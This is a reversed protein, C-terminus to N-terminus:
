GQLLSEANMEWVRIVKYRFRLYEKGDPYQHTLTGTITAANAEPRLLVAVSFVPVQCVRYLHANYRLIREPLDNDHTTQPEIHVIGSYPPRLRFAKDATLQVTSLDVDIADMKVTSPLGFMPGLWTIWDSAFDGLLHKLTIDYHNSM